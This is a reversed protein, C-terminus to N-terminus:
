RRFGQFSYSKVGNGTAQNALLVFQEAAEIETRLTAPDMTIETGASSRNTKSSWFILLWRCATVFAQAETVSNDERYGANNQYLAM